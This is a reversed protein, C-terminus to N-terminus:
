LARPILRNEEVVPVFWYDVNESLKDLINQVPTKLTFKFEPNLPTLNLEKIEATENRDRVKGRQAQLAKETSEASLRLNEKGFFYAAGAGIWAGYAGVLTTLAWKYYEVMRTGVILPLVILLFVLFTLSSLLWVVLLFEYKSEFRKKEKNKKQTEQKETQNDGQSKKLLPM